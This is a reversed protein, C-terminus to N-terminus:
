KDIRNNNNNYIVDYADFSDVSIKINEERINIYVNRTEINNYDNM